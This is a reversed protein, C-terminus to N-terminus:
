LNKGNWAWVVRGLVEVSYKGTLEEPTGALQNDSSVIFTGDLKQRVRKVYLRDNARLVFVGDIDIAKVGSDVLLLDGDNFTPTMSDGYASIVKLNDSRTIRPLRQKVWAQSVRIQDIVQETDPMEHGGGMSGRANLREITITDTGEAIRTMAPVPLDSETGPLDMWGDELHFINEIRRATKHGVERKGTVMQSVHGVNLGTQNAFEVQTGIEKILRKLRERRTAKIDMRPVYCPAVSEALLSNSNVNM